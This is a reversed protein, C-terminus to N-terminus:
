PGARSGKRVARRCFPLAYARASGPSRTQCAFTDGGRAGRDLLHARGTDAGEGDAEDDESHASDDEEGLRIGAALLPLAHRTDFPPHEPHHRCACSFSCLTLNAGTLTCVTYFPSDYTSRAAKDCAGSVIDARGVDAAERGHGVEGHEGSLAPSGDSAATLEEVGPRHRLAQEQIATPTKRHSPSITSM